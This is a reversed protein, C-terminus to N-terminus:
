AGVYFKITTLNVSAVPKGELYAPSLKMRRCFGARATDDLRKYGSSEAVDCRTIVGAENVDIRLVTTGQENKRLSESPYDNPTVAATKTKPAPMVYNQFAPVNGWVPTMARFPKRTNKFSVVKCAQMDANPDGSSAVLVCRQMQYGDSIFEVEASLRIPLPSSAPISLINFVDTGASVQASLTGAGVFVLLKRLKSLWGELVENM